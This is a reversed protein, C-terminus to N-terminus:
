QLLQLHLSAIVLYLLVCLQPYAAAVPNSEWTKNQVCM